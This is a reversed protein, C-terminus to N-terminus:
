LKGGRYHVTVTGVGDFRLVYRESSIGIEYIVNNGDTLNYTVGAFTVTLNESNSVEFTPTVTMQGNHEIPLYVSQSNNIQIDIYNNYIQGNVFNFEDWKWPEGRDQVEYKYPFCDATITFNSHVASNNTASVKLRGEYYYDKESDFIIKCRKGHYVGMLESFIKQYYHPHNHKHIATITVKRNSYKIAGNVESLDLTGNRGPVTVSYLQPSPEGISFDSVYLNFDDTHKNGIRVGM